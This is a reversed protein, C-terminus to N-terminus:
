KGNKIVQEASWYHSKRKMMIRPTSAKPSPQPSHNVSSLPLILHTIYTLCCFWDHVLNLSMRINYQVRGEGRWSSFFFHCLDSFYNPFDSEPMTRGVKKLKVILQWISSFDKAETICCKWWYWVSYHSSIRTEWALMFSFDYLVCVCDWSIRLDVWLSNLSLDIQVQSIDKASSSTLTRGM